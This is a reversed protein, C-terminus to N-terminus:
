QLIQVSQLVHADLTNHDINPPTKRLRLGFGVVESSILVNGVHTLREAQLKLDDHAEVFATSIDTILAINRKRGEDSRNTLGVTVDVVLVVVALRILLVDIKTSIVLSEKATASRELHVLVVHAGEGRSETVVDARGDVADANTKTRGRLQTIRAILLVLAPGVATDTLELDVVLVKKGLKLLSCSSGAVRFPSTSLGVISAAPVRMGRVSSEEARAAKVVVGRVVALEEKGPVLSTKQLVTLLDERGGPIHKADLNRKGGLDRTDVPPVVIARVSSLEGGAVVVGVAVVGVQLNGVADLIVGLDKIESAKLHTIGAVVAARLGGSEDLLGDGGYFRGSHVKITLVGQLEARALTVLIAQVLNVGLSSGVAADRV